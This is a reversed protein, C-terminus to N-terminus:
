ADDPVPEAVIAETLKKLRDDWIAAASKEHARALRRPHGDKSRHLVLALEIWRELAGNARLRAREVETPLSITGTTTVPEDTM